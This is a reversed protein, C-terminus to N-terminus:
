LKRYSNRKRMIFEDCLANETAWIPNNKTKPTAKEKPNSDKLGDDNVDDGDHDFNVGNNSLGIAQREANRVNINADEIIKGNRDKVPNDNEASAAGNGKYFDNQMTGTM